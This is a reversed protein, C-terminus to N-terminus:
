LAQESRSCDRPTSYLGHGGAWWDPAQNLIEGASVGGGGEGPTHVTVANGRRADDPVVM